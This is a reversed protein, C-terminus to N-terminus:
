KRSRNLWSRKRKSLDPASKQAKQYAEQRPHPYKWGFCEGHGERIMVLGYDKGGPLTLYALYRDFVDKRPGRDPRGSELKVQKNALLQMARSTAAEGLEIQHTISSGAREADKAVKTGRRKEPTDLGLVRVRVADGRVLEVDVTDGDIIRVVKGNIGDPLEARSRRKAGGARRAGRKVSKKSKGDHEGRERDQTWTDLEDGYVRYFALRVLWWILLGVASMAGLFIFATLYKYLIMGSTTSILEHM